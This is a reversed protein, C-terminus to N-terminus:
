VNVKRFRRYLGLLTVSFLSLLTVSGSGAVSGTTQEQLRQQSVITVTADNSSSKDIDYVIYTFSDDFPALTNNPYYTLKGGLCTLEETKRNPCIGSKEAVIRGNKPETVIRIYLGNNCRVDGDTCLKGYIGDNDDNDNATINLALNSRGAELLYSDNMANPTRNVIRFNLEGETSIKNITDTFRYVCKQEQGIDQTVGKTDIKLLPYLNKTEETDNRHKFSCYENGSIIEVDYQGNSLKRIAGRANEITDEPNDTESPIDNELVNLEIIRDLSKENTFTLNKDYIATAIRREVSGIDCKINVAFSTNSDRQDIRQTCETPAKDLIYKSTLKPLYTQTMGGYYGLPTFEQEFIDDTVNDLNNTNAASLTTQLQPCTTLVNEFTNFTGIFNLKNSGSREICGLGNNFAIATNSISITSIKQYAIVPATNNKVLTSHDITLVTGFGANSLDLIGGEVKGTNQGVTSLSMNVALAGCGDIINKSDISGNNIISSRTINLNHTAAGLDNACSMSVMAGRPSINNEITSSNMSISSLNGELYFVGGAETAKNQKAISNNFLVQGGAFVAGGLSAEGKSLILNYLSIAAGSKASNFLRHGGNTTIETQPLIRKAKDPNISDYTEKDIPNIGEVSLSREIVLEGKTLLYTGKELSIINTLYRDGARCGGFAKLTNIAHVAERLSCNATNEGFEDVVTTVPIRIAAEAQVALLLPLLALYKLTKM